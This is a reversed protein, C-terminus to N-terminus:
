IANGPVLNIDGEGLRVNLQYKGKGDWKFSREVGSKVSEFPTAFLHGVEVAADVHRYQDPNAVQVVIHGSSNELNKNGVITGIRLGGGSQHIELDVSKPVEITAHFYRTTASTIVKASTGNVEIVVPASSPETAAGTVWNVHIQKATTPVVEYDGVSLDMRIKGGEFPKQANADSTGQCWSFTATLLLVLWGAKM